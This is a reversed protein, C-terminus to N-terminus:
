PASAEPDGAARGFRELLLELVKPERERTFHEAGPEVVV